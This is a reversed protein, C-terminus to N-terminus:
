GWVRNPTTPYMRYQELELTDKDTRVNVHWGETPEMVPNGETDIAGTPRYLVGITSVNAFNNKITDIVKTTLVENAQAEDTFKLYLDTM